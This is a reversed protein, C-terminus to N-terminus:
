NQAILQFPVTVQSTGGSSPFTWSSVRSRICSVVAGNNGGGSTSVSTVNGGPGITMSVTVKVAGNQVLPICARQVGGVNRGVVTSLQEPTLGTSSGGKGPGGSSGDPGGVASCFPDTRPDCPADGGSKGAAPAEKTGGATPPSGAAVAASAGVPFGNSAFMTIAPASSASAGPAATGDTPAAEGAQATTGAAAQGTPAANATPTSETRAETKTSGSTTPASGLFVWAAVGGLAACMAILGWAMPHMGRPRKRRERDGLMELELDARVEAPVESARAAPPSAASPAAESRVERAPEDFRAPSPAAAAELVRPSAPAALAEGAIELRIDAVAKAIGSSPHDEASLLTSVGESMGPNPMPAPVMPASDLPVADMPLPAQFSPLVPAAELAQTPADELSPASPGGMPLAPDLGFLPDAGRADIPEALGPLEPIESKVRTLAFPDSVLPPPVAASGSASSPVVELRGTAADDFPSGTSAPPRIAVTPGSLPGLELAAVPDAADARPAPTPAVPAQTLPTVTPAIGASVPPQAGGAIPRPAGLPVGGPGAGLPAGGPLPRAPLVPVSPLRPAGLPPASPLPIRPPVAAPLAGPALKPVAPISSPRLPAASAVVPAAPAEATASAAEATPPAATATPSALEMTPSAATATPAAPEPASAAALSPAGPADVVHEGEGNPLPRVQLMVGCKRCKMRITKGGVKEDAIQYKASCSQCSFRM